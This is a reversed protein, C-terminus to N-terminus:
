DANCFIICIVVVLDKSPKWRIKMFEKLEGKLIKKIDTEM